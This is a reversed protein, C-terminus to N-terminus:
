SSKKTTSRPCRQIMNQDDGVADPGDTALEAECYAITAQLTEDDTGDLADVVAAPPAKM